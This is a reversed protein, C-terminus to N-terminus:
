PSNKLSLIEPPRATPNSKLNDILEKSMQASLKVGKPAMASQFWKKCLRECEGNGMPKALMGDVLAKFTPDDKRLMIAYPEVQLAEGVVAWEEPTPRAPVCATGLLEFGLEKEDNYSRM